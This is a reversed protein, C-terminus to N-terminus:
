KRGKRTQYRGEAVEQKSYFKILKYGLWASAAVGLIIWGYNDNVFTKVENLFSWSAVGGLGLTPIFKDMFNLTKLRRSDKSAEKYTHPTDIEMIAKLLPMCGIQESVASASYVHDRIYKGKTYHQSGSWLYPNPRRKYRYGFGNYKEFLYAMHEPSWDTVKDFGKMTLADIASELFTFPGFHTTPRSAPVRRTRRKLSDGNHLHKGFDLGCELNHIIGIFYWPMNNSFKNAIEVYKDKNAHIQKAKRYVQSRWSSKIDMSDWNSKYENLMTNTLKM